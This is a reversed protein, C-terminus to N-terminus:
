VIIIRKVNSHTVNMDYKNLACIEVSVNPQSDFYIVNLILIKIAKSQFAVVRGIFILTM